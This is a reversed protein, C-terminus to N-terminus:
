TSQLQRLMYIDSCFIDFVSTISSLPFRDHTSLLLLVDAIKLIVGTCSHICLAEQVAPRNSDIPGACVFFRDNVFMAFVYLVNSPPQPALPVAGMVNLEIARDIRENFDVVAACHIFVDITEYLYALTSASM